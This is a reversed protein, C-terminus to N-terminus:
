HFEDKGTPCHDLNRLRDLQCLRYTGSSHRNAVIWIYLALLGLICGPISTHLWHAVPEFYTDLMAIVFFLGSLKV